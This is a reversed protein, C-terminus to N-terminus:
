NSFPIKVVDDLDNTHLLPSFCTGSEDNDSNRFSKEKNELGQNKVYDDSYEKQKQRKRQVENREHMLKMFARISIVIFCGGCILFLYSTITEAIPAARTLIFLVCKVSFSLKPVNQLFFFIM